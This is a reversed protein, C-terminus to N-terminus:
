KPTADQKGANIPTAAPAVPAVPAANMKTWLKVAEQRLWKDLASWALGAIMLGTGTVTQTDSSLMLGHTVLAGAALTLSHRLQGALISKTLSEANDLEGSIAPPIPASDPTNM